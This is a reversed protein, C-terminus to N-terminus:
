LSALALCACFAPAALELWRMKEDGVRNRIYKALSNGVMICCAIVLAQGLRDQDILGHTSYGIVRFSHVAVSAGAGAALYRAGYAGTSMLLPGLLFGGGGTTASLFGVGAAGPGLLWSPLRVKNRLPIWALSAFCAVVIAIQLLRLPLATAVSAGIFAGPICGLIAPLALRWEFASRFLLLRQSNGVWLALSSITLAALPDWLLSLCTVLFMGGGFGTLTTILGAVLGLAALLLM